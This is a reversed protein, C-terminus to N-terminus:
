TLSYELGYFFVYLYYILLILIILLFIISFAGGLKNKGKKEKLLYISPSSSLFDLRKM